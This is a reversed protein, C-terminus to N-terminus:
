AAAGASLWAGLALALVLAAEVCGGDEAGEDSCLPVSGAAGAEDATVKGKDEEEDDKDMEGAGGATAGLAGLATLAARENADAAAEDAAAVAAVAAEADVRGMGVLTARAGGDRAAGADAASVETAGAPVAELACTAAVVAAGACDDADIAVSAVPLDNTEDADEGAGADAGEALDSAGAAAVPLTSGAAAETDLRGAARGVEAEVNVDAAVEVVAAAALLDVAVTAM